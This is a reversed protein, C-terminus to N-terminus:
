LCLLFTISSELGLGLCLETVGKDSDLSVISGAIVRLVFHVPLDGTWATNKTCVGLNSSSCCFCM